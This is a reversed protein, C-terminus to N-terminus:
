TQMRETTLSNLDDGKPHIFLIEGNEKLTPKNIGVYLTSLSNKSYNLNRLFNDEQLLDIISSTLDFKTAKELFYYNKQFEYVHKVNHFCFIMM